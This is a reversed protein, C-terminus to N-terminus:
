FLNVQQALKKGIRCSIPTASGKFEKSKNDFMLTLAFTHLEKIKCVFPRSGSRRVMAYNGSTAMLVVECQQNENAKEFSMLCKKGIRLNITKM